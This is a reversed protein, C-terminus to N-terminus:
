KATLAKVLKEYKPKNIQNLPEISENLRDLAIKKLKAVVEPKDFTLDHELQLDRLDYLRLANDEVTYILQYENTRVTYTFESLNETNPNFPYYDSEYRVYKHYDDWFPINREDFWHSFSTLWVLSDHPTGKKEGNLYPLLSVGDLELNDPVQIGAADLATPFFDMASVLNDYTGAELHGKWYVFM